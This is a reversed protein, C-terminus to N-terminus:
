MFVRLALSYGVILLAGLAILMLALLWVNKNKM